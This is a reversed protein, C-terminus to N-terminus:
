KGGWGIEAPTRSLAFDWLGSGLESFASPLDASGSGAILASKSGLQALADIARLSNTSM